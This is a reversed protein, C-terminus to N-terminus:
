ELSIKPAPTKLHGEDDISYERQEIEGNRHFIFLRLLEREFRYTVFERSSLNLSSMEQSNIRCGLLVLESLKMDSKLYLELYNEVTHRVGWVSALYFFRIVIKELIERDKSELSELIKGRYSGLIYDGELEVRVRLFLESSDSARPSLFWDIFKRGCSVRVTDFKEVGEKKLPLLLEREGFLVLNKGIIREKESLEFTSLLRNKPSSQFEKLCESYFSDFLRPLTGSHFGLRLLQPVKEGKPGIPYPSPKEGKNAQFLWWNSRLEWVIFGAMGPLALQVIIGVLTISLPSYDQQIMWPIIGATVASILKHAVTVVPFHKIPNIQPEIVLNISFRVLYSIIDWIFSALNKFFSILPSRRGPSIRLFDYGRYIIYDLWVLLANFFDLFWRVIGIFLHNRIKEWLDKLFYLFHDLWILGVPTDFLLLFLSASVFFLTLTHLATVEVLLAKATFFLPFFLFLSFFIPLVGFRFARFLWPIQLFKNAVYASYVKFPISGAWSLTSRIGKGVESFIRRGEKFNLSLLVTGFAFVILPETLLRHLDGVHFLYKDIISAFWAFFVLIVLSGGYPLLLYKVFFRGWRTGFFISSFNQIFRFYFEAPRYIGYLTPALSRDLKLLPDAKSPLFLGLMSFDPLGLHYYSFIDRLNSFTLHQHKLLLDLLAERIKEIEPLFEPRWFGARELSKRLLPRFSERLESEINSELRNLIEVWQPIFQPYNKWNKVKSRIKRVRRLARLSGYFPLEIQSNTRGFHRVWRYISFKYFKRGKEFFAEELSALLTLAKKGDGLPAPLGILFRVFRDLKVEESGDLGFSRGLKSIYQKRIHAEFRRLFRYLSDEERSLVLYSAISNNLYFLARLPQDSRLARITRWLYHQYEYLQARAVWRSFFNLLSPLRGWRFFVGLLLRRLGVGKVRLSITSWFERIFCLWFNGTQRSERVRELLKEESPPDSLSINLARELFLAAQNLMQSIEGRELFSRWYSNPWIAYQGRFIFESDSLQFIALYFIFGLIVSFYHPSLPTLLLVASLIFVDIVAQNSPSSFRPRPSLYFEELQSFLQRETDRLVSFLSGRRSVLPAAAAMAQHLWFVSDLISGRQYAGKWRKLSIEFVWISVNARLTFFFRRVKGPPFWEVPLFELVPRVIKLAIEGELFSFFASIFERILGKKLSLAKGRLDPLKGGYRRWLSAFSKEYFELREQSLEARWDLKLRYNVKWRRFFDFLHALLLLAAGAIFPLAFLPLSIATRYIFSSGVFFSLEEFLALIQQAQSYKFLYFGGGLLYTLFFIWILSPWNVERGRFSLVEEGGGSVMGGGAKGSDVPSSGEGGAGGVEAKGSDVPSGGESRVSSVEAKGSDVPSSGEGGAGGVPSGEGAALERLPFFNLVASRSSPPDPLAYRLGEVPPRLSDAVQRPSVGFEELWPSFKDAAIAPFVKPLHSPSFLSLASWIGVLLSAVESDDERNFLFRHRWFFDRAEEFALHGSIYDSAVNLKLELPSVAKERWLRALHAATTLKWYHWLINQPPTTRLTFPTLKELIVIYKPLIDNQINLERIVRELQVADLFCDREWVIFPSEPPKKDLDFRSWAKFLRHWERREFVFVGESTKEVLLYLQTPDSKVASKLLHVPIDREEKVFEDIIQVFKKM